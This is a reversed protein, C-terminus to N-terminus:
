VTDSRSVAIKQSSLAMNSAVLISQRANDLSPQRHRRRLGLGWLHQHVDRFEAAGLHRCNLRLEVKSRHEINLGIDLAAIEVGRRKRDCVCMLTGARIPVSIHM